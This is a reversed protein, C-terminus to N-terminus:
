FVRIGRKRLERTLIDELQPLEDQQIEISELGLEDYIVKKQMKDALAASKEGDGWVDIFIQYRSLYFDAYHEESHPLRHHYAHAIGATYLWHCIQLHAHSTLCHGDPSNFSDSTAFLDDSQTDPERMIQQNEQLQRHLVANEAINDPWVVYFTGSNENEFQMAGQLQGLKTAEWGQSSHKIWALESLLRNVQRATLEYPKGIATASLTKNSEIAQFLRHEMLESPWVIYRGYRKSHFYEGGEFEGKTTLLWGDDAKKIWGYDKLTSFLQQSQLDLQKALASTSLKNPTQEDM